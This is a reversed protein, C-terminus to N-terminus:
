SMSVTSCLTSEPHNPFRHCDGSSRPGGQRLGRGKPSFAIQGILGCLDTNPIMQPLIQALRSTSVHEFADRLDESIWSWQGHTQAWHEATALARERSYGPSRFGMSHDLYQAGTYPRIIQLIAREVCRDEFNQIRIPRQGRGRGKDIWVTRPESPQYVGRTILDGLAKSLAWRSQDNLASPTLGNPGAAQGRSACHEIAQEVNRTHLGSSKKRRTPQRSLLRAEIPGPKHLGSSGGPAVGSRVM